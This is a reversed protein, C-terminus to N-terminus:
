AAEAPQAPRSIELTYVAADPRFAVDLAQLTPVEFRSRVESAAHRTSAEVLVVWSPVDFKRTSSEATNLFSASTDAALLHCALVGVQALAQPFAQECLYRRMADSNVAAVDLRLALVHGGNSTGHSHVVSCVARSTNRFFQLTHTTGPTPANLRAMYAPSVMVGLDTAEYLTLWEPSHGECRYRRGRLFGPIALREPVHENDHWRYFQERGEATVDNWVVVVGAGLLAGDIRHNPPAASM